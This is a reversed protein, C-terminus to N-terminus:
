PHNETTLACLCPHNQGRGGGCKECTTTVSPMVHTWRGDGMLGFARGSHCRPCIKGPPQLDDPCPDSPRLAAAEEAQKARRASVAKLYLTRYISIEANIEQAAIEAGPLPRSEANMLWTVHTQLEQMRGRLAETVYLMETGDFTIM